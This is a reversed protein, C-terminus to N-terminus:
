CPNDVGRLYDPIDDSDDDRLHKGHAEVGAGAKLLRAMHGPQALDLSALQVNAYALQDALARIMAVRLVSGVMDSRTGQEAWRIKGMALATVKDRVVCSAMRPQGPQVLACMGFADGGDLTALQEVADGGTAVVVDVLGSALVYMDNGTEGETCLFTGRRAAVADFAGGVEALTDAKVGAFLPSRTLVAAADLRASSVTGGSGFASAIRGFFGPSPTVHQAPTGDALTAIRDGIRRLRDSLDDLAHEELSYAVPHGSRRLYAYNDWDLALLTCPSRTQVTASRVGGAFLAMEGLLDGTGVKGLVTDGTRVVLDGTHIVVLTPDEDGEVIVDVGAEVDLTRFRQLATRLDNDSLDTFVSPLFDYM